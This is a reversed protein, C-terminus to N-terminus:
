LREKLALWEEASETKKADIEEKNAKMWDMIGMVFEPVGEGKWEYSISMYENDGRKVGVRAYKYDGSKMIESGVVEEPAITITMGKKAANDEM